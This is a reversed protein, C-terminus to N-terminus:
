RGDGDKAPLLKQVTEPLASWRVQYRAEEKDIAEEDPFWWGRALVWEPDDTPKLEFVQLELTGAPVGEPPRWDDPAVYIFPM